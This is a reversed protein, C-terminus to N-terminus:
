FLNRLFQAFNAVDMTGLGAAPSYGNRGKYFWNDGDTIVHLPAHPGKYAQGTLALAYLPYNLLGLRSGHLSQSLLATVGNLQPAVFSTGGGALVEPGDVDSTYLIIYGTEPDANFSIDPLNRGPFHAPLNVNIPDVGDLEKKLTWTQGPQSSQVGPILLQYLPIPFDISVGGGGGAPFIGCQIPDPAGLAACLPDLYDWGWVRENPITIDFYPPTCADNLCFEFSVPLTTGGAATIATDSAPNDVTLPTSCKPKTESNCELDRNVDYAGGDGSAAFLSQGQLAARVFLEHFAQTMGVTRGTAPDTVPSFEVGQYFEWFGWSTSISDAANSQIAKAYGDIYGQNTNPCEYVIMKAGPAVGGSQEVDLTTEDSGSADSPAGSGGDVKVIKLRSSSVNLGVAGWYAFADSPTFSALTVIGVTQGAGTINQKYLPLVDYYQAFDAVTLEGPPNTTGSSHSVVHVPKIAKPLYEHRPHFSPHTDLGVVAMVSDSIEDPITARTLPAHFTYGFNRGHAPVEFSHLSVSFAREFAAPSGTVTLTTSSSRQSTLGLKALHAVVKAVDAANPGFRADFQEPTLFQHFKASGPTHVATLLEEAEDSNRMRLAVTVTLPTQSNFAGRDIPKPTSRTPYPLAVRGEVAADSQAFAAPICGLLVFLPAFVRISIKLPNWRSLLNVPGFAQLDLVVAM